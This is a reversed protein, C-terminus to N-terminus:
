NESFLNLEKEKDLLTVIEEIKVIVIDSKREFMEYKKAVGDMNNRKISAIINKAMEHIELHTKEISDWIKKIKPNSPNLADYFYAFACKKGDMQVPVVKQQEVMKRVSDKFKRHDQASKLLYKKFDDTEIKHHNKSVIDGTAKTIDKILNIVKSSDEGLEAMSKAEQQLDNAQITLHEADKSVSNMATSVQGLAMNVGKIAERSAHISDVANNLKNEVTEFSASVLQVKEDIRNIATMTEEAKGISEKSANAIKYTFDDMSVLKEKTGEALKRIEEAVVAFGKGSEGARAAEISANLALLNTQEAIQRVGEVILKVEDVMNQLMTMNKMMDNSIGITHNTEESVNNMSAINEKNLDAIEKVENGILFASATYDKMLNTVDAMSASTEKTVSSQSQAVDLIKNVKEGIVESHHFLKINFGSLDAAVDFNKELVKVMKISDKKTIELFDYIPKIKADNIHKLAELGKNTENDFECVASSVYNILKNAKLMKDEKYLNGM